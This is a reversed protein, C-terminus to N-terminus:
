SMTPLGALEAACSGFDIDPGPCVRVALFIASRDAEGNTEVHIRPLLWSCTRTFRRRRGMCAGDTTCCVQVNARMTCIKRMWRCAAGTSGCVLVSMYQPEAACMSM